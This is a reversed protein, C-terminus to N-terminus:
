DEFSCELPAEMSCIILNSKHIQFKDDESSVDARPKEEGEEGHYYKDDGVNYVYKHWTGSIKYSRVMLNSNKITAPIAKLYIDSLQIRALEQALPM